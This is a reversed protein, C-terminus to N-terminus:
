EEGNDLTSMDKMRNGNEEIASVREILDLLEIAVPKKNPEFDTLVKSCNLRYPDLFVQPFDLLNM